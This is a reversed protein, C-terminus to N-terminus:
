LYTALARMRTQSDTEGFEKGTTRLHHDTFRRVSKTLEHVKRLCGDYDIAESGPLDVACALNIEAVDLRGLEEDPIRVLDQWRLM